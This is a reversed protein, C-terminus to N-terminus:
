ITAGSPECWASGDFLRFMELRIRDDIKMNELLAAYENKIKAKTDESINQWNMESSNKKAATEMKHRLTELTGPMEPLVVVLYLSEDNITSEMETLLIPMNCVNRKDTETNSLVNQLQRMLLEEESLRNSIFHIGKVANNKLMSSVTNLAIPVSEKQHVLFTSGMDRIRTYVDTKQSSALKSAAKDLEFVRTQLALDLTKFLKIYRASIMTYDNQMQRKVGKLAIGLQGLIMLKSTVNSNLAATKQSIQSKILFYFGRDVNQCIKDAGDREASIVAAQMATVAVAVGTVHNSVTDVKNALPDTDVNFNFNAM